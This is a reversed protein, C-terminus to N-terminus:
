GYTPTPIPNGYEDYNLGTTSGAPGGAGGFFRGATGLISGVGGAVTGAASLQAGENAANGTYVAGAAQNRLGTATSQGKFLGLAASFAGRKNINGVDTAPSGVGADVGSAAAAATAKSQLLRSKQQTDEMTRQSSGIAQGANSNLQSATFQASQQAAKGANSQAAAGAVTGAATAAMSAVTLATLTVPDFVAMVFPREASRSLYFM